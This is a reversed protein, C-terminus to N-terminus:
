ELLIIAGAGLVILLSSFVRIKPLAKMNTQNEAAITWCPIHTAKQYSIKSVTSHEVM